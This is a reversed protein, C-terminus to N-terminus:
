RNLKNKRMPVRNKCPEFRCSNIAYMTKFYDTSHVCRRSVIAGFILQNKFGNTFYKLVGIFNRWSTHQWNKKGVCKKNSIEFHEYNCGNEKVKKCLIGIKSDCIWYEIVM